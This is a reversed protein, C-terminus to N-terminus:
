RDLIQTYSDIKKMKLNNKAFKTKLNVTPKSKIVVKGGLNNVSQLISPPHFSARSNSNERSSNISPLKEVAITRLNLDALSM